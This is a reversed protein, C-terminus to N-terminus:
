EADELEFASELVLVAEPYPPVLLRYLLFSSAFTPHLTESKDDGERQSYGVATHRKTETDNKINQKHGLTSM